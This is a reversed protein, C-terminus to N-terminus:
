PMISENWTFHIPNKSWWLSPQIEQLPCHYEKGMATQWIRLVYVQKKQWVQVFKLATQPHMRQVVFHSFQLFCCTPAPRSVFALHLLMFHTFFQHSCLPTTHISQTESVHISFPYSFESSKKNVNYLTIKVYKPSFSIWSRSLGQCFRPFNYLIQEHRSQTESSLYKFCVPM